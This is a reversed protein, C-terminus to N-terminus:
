LLGKKKLQKAEQKDLNLFEIIEQNSYRRVSYPLVRVPEIILQGKIKKIRALQNEQLGLTDRFKKPLTILGKPQIRVLQESIIQPM